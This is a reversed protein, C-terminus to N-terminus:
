FYGVGLFSKDCLLSLVFFDIFPVFYYTYATDSILILGSSSSSKALPFSQIATTEQGVETRPANDVALDQPPTEGTSLM